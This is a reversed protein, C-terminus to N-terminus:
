RLAEVIEPDAELDAEIQRLMQERDEPDITEDDMIAQVHERYRPPLDITKETTYAQMYETDLCISMEENGRMITEPADPYEGNCYREWVEEPDEGADIRNNMWDAIEEWNEPIYAGFSDATIKM